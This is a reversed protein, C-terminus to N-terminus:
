TTPMTRSYPGLPNRNSIRSTGRYLGADTRCIHGHMVRARRSQSAVRAKGVATGLLAYTAPEYVQTDSFELSPLLSSSSSGVSARVPQGRRAAHSCM